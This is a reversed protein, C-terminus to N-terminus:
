QTNHCLESLEACSVLSSVAPALLASGTSRIGYTHFGARRVPPSTNTFQLNGKKADPRRPGPRLGPLYKKAWKLSIKFCIRRVM